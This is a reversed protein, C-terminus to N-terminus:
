CRLNMAQIVEVVDNELPLADQTMVQSYPAQLLRGVHSVTPPQGPSLAHIVEEIVDEMATDAEACARSLMSYSVVDDDPQLEADVTSPVPQTHAGDQEGRDGRDKEAHSKYYMKVVGDAEEIERAEEAGGGEHLLWALGRQWAVGGPAAWSSM